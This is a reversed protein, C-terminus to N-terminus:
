PHKVLAELGTVGLAMLKVPVDHARVKQYFSQALRNNKLVTWAIWMGGQELTDAAVARFLARGIGMRRYSAIVYIDGLHSGRTATATDYGPYYLAMGIIKGWGEAVLIHFAPCDGFGDRLYAEESFLSLPQHEFAALAAVLQVVAPADERRAPRIHFNNESDVATSSTNEPKNDM